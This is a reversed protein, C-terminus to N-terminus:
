WLVKLDEGLEVERRFGAARGGGQLYIGVVLGATGAGGGLRHPASGAGPEHWCQEGAQRLAASVDAGRGLCAPLFGVLLARSIAVSSCTSSPCGCRAAAEM